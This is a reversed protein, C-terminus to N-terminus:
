TVSEDYCVLEVVNGEPDSFFLGRWHFYPFERRTTLVGLEALRAEEAEYDELDILFAFHDLIKREDQDSKPRDFLGLLQPHGDVADGIEMFVYPPEDHFVELGVIDRYFSKMAALDDVRLVIEGFRKM